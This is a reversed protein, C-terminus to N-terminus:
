QSVVETLLSYEYAETLEVEVVAPNDEVLAWAEM